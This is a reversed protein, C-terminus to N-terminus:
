THATLARRLDAWRSRDDRAALWLWLRRRQPGSLRLLVVSQADMVWELRQLDVPEGDRPLWRWLGPRELVLATARGGWQLRGLPQRRWSRYAWGSWVGWALGALAALPVSLAPYWWWLMLLALVAALSCLALLQGYFACRGVPYTVSPANRM